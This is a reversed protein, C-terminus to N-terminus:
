LLLFFFEVDYKQQLTQFYLLNNKILIKCYATNQLICNYSWNKFSYPQDYKTEECCRALDITYFFGFPNLKKQCAM